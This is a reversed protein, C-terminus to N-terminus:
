KKGFFLKKTLFGVPLIALLWWWNVKKDSMTALGEGGGGAGIGQIRTKFQEQWLRSKPDIGRSQRGIRSRKDTLKQASRSIPGSSEAQTTWEKGETQAESIARGGFGAKSTQYAGEFDGEAIQGSARWMTSPKAIGPTTYKSVKDAADLVGGAADDDVM